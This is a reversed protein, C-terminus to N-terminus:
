KDPLLEISTIIENLAGISLFQSLTIEIRRYIDFHHCRRVKCGYGKINCILGDIQNDAMHKEWGEIKLNIISIKTKM